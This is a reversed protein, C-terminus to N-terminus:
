QTVVMDEVLFMKEGNPGFALLGNCQYLRGCVSCPFVINSPRLPKSQDDSFIDDLSFARTFDLHGSCGQETCGM